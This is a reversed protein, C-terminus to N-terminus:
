SVSRKQRFYAYGGFAAFFSGMLAIVGIPSEPIVLFRVDLTKLIVGGDNGLHAEVTWTGVEDPTFTDDADFGSSLPLTTTSDVNGSPDIWSITVDSVVYNNTHVVARM